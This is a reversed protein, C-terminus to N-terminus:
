VRVRTKGNSVRLIGEAMPWALPATLQLQLELHGGVLLSGESPGIKNLCPWLVVSGLIDKTEAAGKYTQQLERERTDSM